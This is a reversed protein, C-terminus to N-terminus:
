ATRKAQWDANPRYQRFDVFANKETNNLERNHDLHIQTTSLSFKTQLFWHIEQKGNSLGINNFHEEGFKILDILKNAKFELHPM